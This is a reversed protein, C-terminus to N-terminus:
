SLLQILQLLQFSSISDKNRQQHHSEQYRYSSKTRRTCSNITFSLALSPHLSPHPCPQTMPTPATLLKYLECSRKSTGLFLPIYSDNLQIISLSSYLPIFPRTSPPTSSLSSPPTSLFYQHSCVIWRGVSLGDFLFFSGLFLDPVGEDFCFFVKM